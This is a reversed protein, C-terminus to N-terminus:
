QRVTTLSLFLSLSLGVFRKGVCGPAVGDRVKCYLIGVDGSVNERGYCINKIVMEMRDKEVQFGLCLFHGKIRYFGVQPENGLQLGSGRSIVGFVDGHCGDSVYLM